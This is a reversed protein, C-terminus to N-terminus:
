PQRRERTHVVAVASVLVLAVSLVGVSMGMEVEVAAFRFLDPRVAAAGIWGVVGLALVLSVGAARDLWPSPSRPPAPQVLAPTAAPREGKRRRLAFLGMGLLYLVVALGLVELGHDIGVYVVLAFVSLVIVALPLLRGLPARYAHSLSPERRRLRLLCVMALVYWVLSALGAVLIAVMIADKFWVSAVVAVAALGSSVILAPLPTRRTTHVGGVWAPLHGARGLAFAQRSTGYLLGHYSALLGFLAMAGFVVAVWGAGGTVDRVVKALPYDGTVTEWPVAGATLTLTLTVMGVTTLVAVVLGRPIARHPQHTEEAALAAGEVIILWWLAYPLADLVGRWGKGALPDPQPWARDRSFNSGAVLWYVVLAVIAAVTMLTLARSQEKVGWAQLVFFVAVTGLGAWLVVAPDPQDPNFLFAVYWAAALATAITGFLCEVLMSWAMVFGLWPGGARQGYDLPGGARPLAVALESLALVWVLFLLCVILSAVAMGGPGGGLLGLNWGFYQGCVVIGVGLAWVDRTRLQGGRLEATTTGSM